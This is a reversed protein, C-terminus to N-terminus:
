NRVNVIVNVTVNYRYYIETLRVWRWSMWEAGVDDWKTRMWDATQLRCDCEVSEEGVRGECEQDGKRRKRVRAIREEREIGEGRRDRERKELERRKERVTGWVRSEEGEREGKGRGDTKNLKLIQQSQRM